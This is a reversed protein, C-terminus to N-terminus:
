PTSSSSNSTNGTNRSSSSGSRTLSSKSVHASLTSHEGWGLGPSSPVSSNVDILLSVSHDGGNSSRSNGSQNHGSSVVNVVNRFNRQNNIVLGDISDVFGGLSNSEELSKVSKVINLLHSSGHGKSVSLSLGSVSSESLSSSRQNNVVCIVAGHELSQSVQWSNFEAINVSEVNKLEGWSSVESSEDDPGSISKLLQVRDISSLGLLRLSLGVVSEWSGDHGVGIDVSDDVRLFDLVGDVDWSVGVALGSGLQVRESVSSSSNSKVRSGSGVDSSRNGLRLLSGLLSSIDELLLSLSGQLLVGLGGSGGLLEGLSDGLLSLSVEGKDALLFFLIVRQNLLGDKV